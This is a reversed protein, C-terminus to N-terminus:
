FVLKHYEEELQRLREMREALVIQLQSAEELADSVLAFTLRTCLSPHGPADDALEHRLADIRKWLDQARDSVLDLPQSARIIDLDEPIIRVLLERKWRATAASRFADIVRPTLANGATLIRVREPFATLSQMNEWVTAPPVGFLRDREEQSYNEFVNEEARYARNKELYAAPEGAKKSIEALLAEPSTGSQVGWKMGDLMALISAAVALYTNTHPNPSRLEFRTALPNDVDRVLGALVTRNRSPTAPDIGLAAVICVPAEFGPKLRNFADNSASIFPNVVEYNRLLGMLAGYGIVSLFDSRMDAPAFLNIRRGSPLVGAVGLHTHEGSGAVGPIPKAKFNVTLGNARFTEKVLIRALLENDAAQVASAYRWDIEMQEMVHTLEGGAGIAAKVGGVEKHGMEPHLGYAELAMVAQELATRASGRTRQWYNEQLVQAASLEDINATDTPTKVWFELETGVTFEIDALRAPELHSLFPSSAHERLLGLLIRRAYSVTAELISRADVRV